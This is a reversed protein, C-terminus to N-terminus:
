QPEEIRVETMKVRKVNPYRLVASQQKIVNWDLLVHELSDAQDSFVRMLNSIKSRWKNGGTM